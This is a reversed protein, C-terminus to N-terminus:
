AGHMEQPEGAVEVKANPYIRAIERIAAPEAGKADVAHAEVAVVM